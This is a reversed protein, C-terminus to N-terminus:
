FYFKLRVEFKCKSSNFKGIKKPYALKLNEMIAVFEELNKSLRPNLQKEEAVTSELQGRSPIIVSLFIWAVCNVWKYDHAPFIRFNDPLSFIKEHVSNYLTTANGEQFDTRGCGRILVADGTFAIGQEYNVYTMCGAVFVFTLFSDSSSMLGKVTQTDRRQCPLWKTDALSSKTATKWCKILRLAQRLELWASFELCCSSWIDPEPSTTRMATLISHLSWSSVLNM